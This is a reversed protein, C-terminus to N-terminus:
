VIIQDSFFFLRSCVKLQDCESLENRGVQCLVIELSLDSYIETLLQVCGLKMNQMCFIDGSGVRM